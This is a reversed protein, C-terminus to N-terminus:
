STLCEVEEIRQRSFSASPDQLRVKGLGRHVNGQRRSLTQDLTDMTIPLQKALENGPRVYVENFMGIEPFKSGGVALAVEPGDYKEYHKHLNSKWQTFRGTCIENIYKASVVRWSEWLLPSHNRIVLGIDIALANHHQPDWMITIKETMTCTIKATKLLKCPGGKGHVSSAETSRRLNKANICDMMVQYLGM